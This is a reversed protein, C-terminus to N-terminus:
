VLQLICTIHAKSFAERTHFVFMIVYRPYALPPGGTMLLQLFV